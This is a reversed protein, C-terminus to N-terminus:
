VSEKENERFFCCAPNNSGWVGKFHSTFPVTWGQNPCVQTPYALSLITKNQKIHNYDQGKKQEAFTCQRQSSNWIWREWHGAWSWSWAVYVSLSTHGPCVCRKGAHRWRYGDARWEGACHLSWLSSPPYVDTHFSPVPLKLSWGTTQTIEAPICVFLYRGPPTM